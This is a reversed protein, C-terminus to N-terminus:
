EIRELNVLHCMRVQGNDKRVKADMWKMWPAYGIVEGELKDTSKKGGKLTRVRCGEPFSDKLEEGIKPEYPKPPEIRPAECDRVTGIADKANRYGVGLKQLAKHAVSSEDRLLGLLLHQTGIHNSGGAESGSRSISLKAKDSFDIV